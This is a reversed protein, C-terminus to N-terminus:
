YKIRIGRLVESNEPPVRRAVNDTVIDAATQVWLINLFIKSELKQRTTKKKSQFEEVM